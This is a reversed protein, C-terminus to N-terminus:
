YLVDLHEWEFARGVNMQMWLVQVAEDRLKASGHGYYLVDLIHYTKRCYILIAGIQIYCPWNGRM